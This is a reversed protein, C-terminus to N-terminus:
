FVEFIQQVEVLVGVARGQQLKFVWIEIEHVEIVIGVARGQQM